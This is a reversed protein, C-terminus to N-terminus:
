SSFILQKRFKMIQFGCLLYGEKAFNSKKKLGSVTWWDMLM